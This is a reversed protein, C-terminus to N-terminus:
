VHQVNPLNHLGLALVLGLGLRSGVGLGIALASRSQDFIACNTVHQAVPLNILPVTCKTLRAISWIFNVLHTSCVTDTGSISTQPSYGERGKREGEEKGKGGWGM